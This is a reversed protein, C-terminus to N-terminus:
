LEGFLVQSEAEGAVHFGLVVGGEPVEDGRAVVDCEVDPDYLGDYLATHHTEGSSYLLKNTGEPPRSLSSQTQTQTISNKYHDTTYQPTSYYIKM